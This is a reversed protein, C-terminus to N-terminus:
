WTLHKVRWLVALGAYVKDLNPLQAEQKRQDILDADFQSQPVFSIKKSSSEGSKSFVQFSGLNPAIPYDYDAHVSKDSDIKRRRSKLVSGKGCMMIPFIKNNPEIWTNGSLVVVLTQRCLKMSLSPVVLSLNDCMKFEWFENVILHGINLLVNDLVCAVIQAQLILITRINVSPSISNCVISMWTSAQSTIQTLLPRSIMTSYGM